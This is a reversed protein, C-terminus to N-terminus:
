SSFYLGGHPPKGVSELLVHGHILDPYVARVSSARRCIVAVNVHGNDRGLKPAVAPLVRLYQGSGYEGVRDQDLCEGETSGVAL